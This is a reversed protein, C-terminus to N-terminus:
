ARLTQSNPFLSLPRVSEEPNGNILEQYAPGYPFGWTKSPEDAWPSERNM